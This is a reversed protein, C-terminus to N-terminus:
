MSGLGLSFQFIQYRRTLAPWDIELVRPFVKFQRAYCLFLLHIGVQILEANQVRKLDTNTITKLSWISSLAVM